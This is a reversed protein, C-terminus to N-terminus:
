AKINVGGDIVYESGTIFSADDSSLFAVLKAIDASAGFRKMPIREQMSGAFEQM